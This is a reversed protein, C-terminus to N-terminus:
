FRPYVLAGLAARQVTLLIIPQWYSCQTRESAGVRTVHHDLRTM